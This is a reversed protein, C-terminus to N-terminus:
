RRAIEAYGLVESEDPPTLGSSQIIFITSRNEKKVKTETPHNGRDEHGETLKEGGSHCGSPEGAKWVVDYLIVPVIDEWVNATTGRGV